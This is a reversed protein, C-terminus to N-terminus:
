LDDDEDDSSGGFTGGMEDDAADEIDDGDEAAFGHASADRQGFSVVTLLQVAELRYSVGVTGDNAAFYPNMEISMKVESGGGISPPNKLQVGKANFIDPRRTWKQGTKPGSKYTGSAVMKAKLIVTGTGEGEEDIEEQLPEILSISKLKKILAQKGAAKLEASKAEYEEDTLLDPNAERVEDYKAQALELAKARMKQVTPDNIPLEVKCEYVGAANYKTDPENLRPWIAAARPTTFKPGAVFKKKDAM